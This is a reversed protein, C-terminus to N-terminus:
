YIVHMYTYEVYSIVYLIDLIIYICPLGEVRVTLMSSYTYYM